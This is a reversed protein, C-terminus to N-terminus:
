DGQTVMAGGPDHNDLFTLVQDITLEGRVFQGLLMQEYPQPALKTDRTLSLALNVARLRNQETAASTTQPSM